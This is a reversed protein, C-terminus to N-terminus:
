GPPSFGRIPSLRGARGETVAGAAAAGRGARFLEPDDLADPPAVDAPPLDGTSRGFVDLPRDPGASPDRDATEASSGTSSM